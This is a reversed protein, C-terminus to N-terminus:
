KKIRDYVPINLDTEWSLTFVEEKSDPETRYSGKSKLRLRKQDFDYDSFYKTLEEPTGAVTRMVTTGPIVYTLNAQDIRNQEDLFLVLAAYGGKSLEKSNDRLIDFRSDETVPKTFFEVKLANRKGSFFEDTYTVFASKTELRSNGPKVFASKQVALDFVATTKFEQPTFQPPESYVESPLASCALTLLFVLVRMNM